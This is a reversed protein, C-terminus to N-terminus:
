KEKEVFVRLKESEFGCSNCKVTYGRKKKGVLNYSVYFDQYDCKPCMTNLEKVECVFMKGHTKNFDFVVFNEDM